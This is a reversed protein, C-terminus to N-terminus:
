SSRRGLLRARDCVRGISTNALSIVVALTRALSARLSAVASFLSREDPSSPNAPVASSSALLIRLEDLVATLNERVSQLCPLIAQLLV